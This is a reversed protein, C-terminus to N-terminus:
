DVTYNMNMKCMETRDVRQGWVVQKNPDPNFPNQASNDFYCKARLRSGKKISLPELPELGAGTQWGYYYNPISVLTKTHGEPTTLEVKVAQGRMHLHGLFYHLKINEPVVWDKSVVEFNRTNPPIIFDPQFITYSRLQKMNKPRDKTGFFKVTTQESEEKGTGMYHTEMILYSGKPLFAAGIRKFSFPQPKGAGWIMFRLYSDPAFNREYKTMTNLLYLAINGEINNKIENQNIEFKKKSLQEYFSLPKSTVMLAAHHVQRPNTSSTWGGTVWMDFPAADGLQIYQYEIEGGPPIKWPKMTVTYIPEESSKKIQSKKLIQENAAILPDTQGDKPAGANFWKILNRKEESTLSIDNRYKGYYTDASFPPMRDTFITEKSMEIWNKVKEHNTFYPLFGGGVSHCNVCKNAIIPAITKEYSINGEDFSILCGKAPIAVTKISENKVISNLVDNLYNNQAIQKDAGYDLQDSIAGRYLIKWGNPDIVIAESSRTIGLANAVIQSKDMLIPFNLNYEKAEKIISDRDDGLSSNLYYFVIKQKSYTESIKAIINSYKQNIPCDNSQSIIVIAKADQHRYLEHFNGLHDLLAFNGVEGKAATLAEPNKYGYGLPVPEKTTAKKNCSTTFIGILIICYFLTKM